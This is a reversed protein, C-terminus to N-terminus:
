AAYTVCPHRFCSKILKPRGELMFMQIDVKADLEPKTKPVEDRSISKKLTNNLYEDPNLEPSYSPLYFLEIREKNQELWEKVQKSHHVRLNDVILYIKRKRYKILQELFKLFLQCNLPERLAMWQIKGQNNIASILASHFRKAPQRVVPTKGKPAFGRRHHAEPKVATEDGWWIEANEEKAHQQIQPYTEEMWQKVAQPKQEYAKKIPRQPTFGWRKLVVSISQLAYEIGYRDKILKRVAERTWLAFNLKLQDPTKDTILKRVEQEQEPTLKTATGKARGRKGKKLAKWGGKEYTQVWYGVHQRSVGLM